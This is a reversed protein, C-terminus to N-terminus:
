KGLFEKIQDFCYNAQEISETNSNKNGIQWAQKCYKKAVEAMGSQLYILGLNAHVVGVHSKDELAKGTKVADKLFEEAKAMDGARWSTIGLDNLLLMSQETNKGQVDCCVNYAEQLHMKSEEIKGHDLLFQAYWDQIIGYLIKSDTSAKRKSDIKELCWKYGLAAKEEQALLHSIRALKLSVHIMKLDDEKVGAAFLMQMVSVFLKESKELQHTDMALNAMLDYCYLVGQSNQQQQALRLALHLMQEAKDFQERQNCLIARKITMILESEKEADDKEFGLWGLISLGFIIQQKLWPKPLLNQPIQVQKVKAVCLPIVNLKNYRFFVKITNKFM